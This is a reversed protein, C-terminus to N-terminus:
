IQKRVVAYEDDLRFYPCRYNTSNLFNYMEDEDLNILCTYCGCEDDYEYYTCNECDTKRDM